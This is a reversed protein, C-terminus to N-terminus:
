VLAALEHNVSFGQGHLYLFAYVIRCSQGQRALGEM